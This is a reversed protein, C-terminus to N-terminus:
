RPASFLPSSKRLRCRFRGKRHPPACYAGILRADQGQSRSGQEGAAGEEIESAEFAGAGRRPARSRRGGAPSVMYDLTGM